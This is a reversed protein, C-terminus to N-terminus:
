ETLEEVDFELQNKYGELTNTVHTMLAGRGTTAEDSDDGIDLLVVCIDCSQHDSICCTSDPLVNIHLRANM